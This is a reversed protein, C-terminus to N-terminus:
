LISSIPIRNAKAMVTGRCQTGIVDECNLFWEHDFIEHNRRRHKGLLRPEHQAARALDCELLKLVFWRYRGLDAALKEQLDPVRFM